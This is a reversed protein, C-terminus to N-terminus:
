DHRAAKMRHLERINAAHAKGHASLGDGGCTPCVMEFAPGRDLIPSGREQKNPVYRRGNGACDACKLGQPRATDSKM